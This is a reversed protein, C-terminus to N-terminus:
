LDGRPVFMPLCLEGRREFTVKVPLGIRVQSPECQVNSMMRVHEALEILALVYPTEFAASPPQYVISFHSVTGLGSAKVWALEQSWCKPCWEHAFRFRAECKSCRRLRLEGLACGEFYLRNMETVTPVPKNM